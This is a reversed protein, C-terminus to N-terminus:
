SFQEIIKKAKITVSKKSLNPEENAISSLLVKYGYNCMEFFMKLTKDTSYRNIKKQTKSIEWPKM